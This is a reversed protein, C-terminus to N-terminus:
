FHIDDIFQYIYIYVFVVDFMRKKKYLGGVVEMYIRNMDLVLPEGTGEM